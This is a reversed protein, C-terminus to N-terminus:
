ALKVESGVLEVMQAREQVRPKPHFKRMEVITIEEPETLRVYKM